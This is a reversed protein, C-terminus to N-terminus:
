IEEDPQLNYTAHDALLLIQEARLSNMRGMVESFDEFDLLAAAHIGRLLPTRDEAEVLIFAVDNSGSRDCEDLAEELITVAWADDRIKAYNSLFALNAELNKTGGTLGWYVMCLGLSYDTAQHFDLSDNVVANDLVLSLIQIAKKISTVTAETCKMESSELSKESIEDEILGALLWREFADNFSCANGEASEWEDLKTSCLNRVLTGAALGGTQVVTAIFPKMAQLFRVMDRM